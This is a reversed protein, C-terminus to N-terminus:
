RGRSDKVPVALARLGEQLEGDVIAYGDSRARRVAAAVKSADVVTRVTHREPPQRDLVEALEEDSLSTM